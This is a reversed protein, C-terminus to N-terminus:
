TTEVPNIADIPPVYDPNLDIGGTIKNYLYKNKDFQLIQFPLEAYNTAAKDVNADICFQTFIEEATMQNTSLHHRYGLLKSNQKNFFIVFM